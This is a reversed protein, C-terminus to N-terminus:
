RFHPRKTRRQCQPNGNLGQYKRCHHQDPGGQDEPGVEERRHISGEPPDCLNLCLATGARGASREGKMGPSERPSGAIGRREQAGPRLEKRGVASRLEPAGIERIREGNGGLSRLLGPPTAGPEGGVGDRPNRDPGHDVRHHQRAWQM